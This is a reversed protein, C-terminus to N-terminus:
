RRLRREARRAPRNNREQRLQRILRAVEAVLAPALGETPEDMVLLVPPECGARAIALMQQEGGSFDNGGHHRREALRPFCRLCAISRELRDRVQGSTRRDASERPRDALRLHAPGASRPQHRRRLYSAAATADRRPRGAGRSRRAPTLGVLSRCLTTKGVGNRGLVATVTGKDARLTVGQLVHSDGYYTHVDRVDLMAQSQKPKAAKVTGRGSCRSLGEAGHPKRQGRRANRRCCEARTFCRSARPLSFAVDMDHEILLVAISPDLQELLGHMAGREADSLGAMPEDLLLLRPRGALAVVGDLKRRTATRSIARQEGAFPSLGFTDLLEVREENSTRIRRFPAICRFSGGTSRRPRSSCTKSSRRRSLAEHDSLDQRHGAGRRQYAAVAHRRHRVARDQRIDAGPRRQDPQVVDDQGRRQARDGRAARRAGGDARRRRGSSAAPLPALRARPRAGACDHSRADKVTVRSVGVTGILWSGRLCQPVSPHPFERRPLPPLARPIEAARRERARGASTSTRSQTATNTSRGGSRSAPRIATGRRLAELLRASGRRPRQHGQDGGRAVQRGHVHERLLLEAGEQVARSVGARVRNDPTDLAASYHLATVTGLAEDGMFPLVHEDTTTGGGILERSGEVRVGPVAAHVAARVPRALARLGCRRGPIQALYARFRAGLGADLNKQVIRGGEAVFTREFGGVSEWGFAYDLAITVVSRLRAHSLRIRWVRPEASQRELRHPRDM